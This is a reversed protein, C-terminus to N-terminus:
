IEAVITTTKQKLVARELPIYQIYEVSWVSCNRMLTPDSPDVVFYFALNHARPSLCCNM